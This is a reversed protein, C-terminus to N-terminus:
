GRVLDLEAQHIRSARCKGAASFFSKRNVIKELLAGSADPCRRSHQTVERISRGIRPHIDVCVQRMIEPLAPFIGVIVAQYVLLLQIRFLQCGMVLPDNAPRIQQISFPLRCSVQVVERTWIILLVGQPYRIGIIHAPHRRFAQRHVGKVM